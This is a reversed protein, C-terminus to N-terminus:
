PLLFSGNTNIRTQGILIRAPRIDLCLDGALSSLDKGAGVQPADHLFEVIGIKQVRPMEPLSQTLDQILPVTGLDPRCHMGSLSATIGALPFGQFTFHIGNVATGTGGIRGLQGRAPREPRNQSRMDVKVPAAKKARFSFM